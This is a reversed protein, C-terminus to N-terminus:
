RLSSYTAGLMVGPRDRNGEQVFVVAGDAGQSNVNEIPVTWTAAKGSWDGVKLWNRVVNHYIVERGKNEGRGIAVPVSATVSSIWVEGAQNASPAEPVSVTIQGKAVSVNVPVSM